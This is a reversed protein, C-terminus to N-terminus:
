KSVASPKMEHKTLIYETQTTGSECWVLLKYWKDPIAIRNNIRCFSFTSQISYTCAILLCAWACM